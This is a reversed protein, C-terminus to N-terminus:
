IWAPATPPLAGDGTLVGASSRGTAWALLAARRGCLVLGGAEGFAEETDVCELRVRQEGRAVWLSLVDGILRVAVRGPIDDVRAGLRDHGAGLDVAHLWVERTRMWVTESVPVDRGLATRVRATWRDPPLDRWAVDLSVAAHDSLHRLARPSLTAGMEIEATRESASSYMPTEVGTEAWEVLRTIARANYGVHAAVHARSWGALRSPEALEDNRLENLARSFFAQGLRVDRLDDLVAPDTARDTLVTM